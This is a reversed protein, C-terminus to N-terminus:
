KKLNPLLGPSALYEEAAEIDAVRYKFKKPGIKVARLEECEVSLLVKAESVGWRAAVEFTSLLRTQKADHIALAKAVGRIIAEELAAPDFGTTAEVTSM